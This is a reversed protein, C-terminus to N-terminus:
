YRKVELRKLKESEFFAEWGEKPIHKYDLRQIWNIDM